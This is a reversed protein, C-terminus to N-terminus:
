LRHEGAFKLAKTGHTCIIEGSFGADILDPVRGIHDIHSHTLDDPSDLLVPAPTQQQRHLPRLGDM